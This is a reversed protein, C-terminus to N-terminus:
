KGEGEPTPEPRFRTRWRLADEPWIADFAEIAAFIKPALEENGDRRANMFRVLLLGYVREIDNPETM